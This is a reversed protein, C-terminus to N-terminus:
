TLSSCSIGSKPPSCPASNYNNGNHQRASGGATQGSFLEVSQSSTNGGPIAIERDGMKVHISTSSLSFTPCFVDHCDPYAQSASRHKGWVAQM